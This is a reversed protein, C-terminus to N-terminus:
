MLAGEVINADSKLVKTTKECDYLNQLYAKIHRTTTNSYKESVYWYGNEEPSLAEPDYGAVLTNYSFFYERGSNGTILTQNAGLQQLRM